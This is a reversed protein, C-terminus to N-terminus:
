SHAGLGLNTFTPTSVSVALTGRGFPTRHLGDLGKLTVRNPKYYYRFSCGKLRLFGSRRIDESKGAVRKVM